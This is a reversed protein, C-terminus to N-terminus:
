KSKSENEKYVTEYLERNKEQDSIFKQVTKRMLMKSLDIQYVEDKGELKKKTRASLQSSSM